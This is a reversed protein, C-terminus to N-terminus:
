QAAEERATVAMPENAAQWAAQVGKAFEGARLINEAHRLSQRAAKLPGFSTKVAMCFSEWEMDPGVEANGGDFPVVNSSRPPAANAGTPITGIKPPTPLPAPKAPQRAAEAERIAAQAEAKAQAAEAELRKREETAKKAEFRRRLEAELFAPAMTELDDRDPLSEDGHAAAYQDLKARCLKLNGNAVVVAMELAKQMSDLTRKGKIAEAMVKGYTSQRLRAACDLKGLAEAVLESKVEDKRKAILKELELRPARIEEATENLGDVLEKLKEDFAQLAAARVTDEAGKLAKVDLEAQGFDEDTRLDRNINGLAERVLERFEPLNNTIIEGRAEVILPIITFTHNM